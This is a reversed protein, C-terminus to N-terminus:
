VLKYKTKNSKLVFFYYIFFSYILNIPMTIIIKDLFININSIGLIIFFMLDYLLLSLIIRKFYSLDKYLYNLFLILLPLYLIGIICSYIIYIVIIKKFDINLYMSSILFIFSFMPFVINNGIINLILLDIVLSMIGLIM